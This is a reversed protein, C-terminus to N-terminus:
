RGGMRLDGFFLIYLILDQEADFHSAAMCAGADITGDGSEDFLGGSWFFEDGDPANDFAEKHPEKCVPVPHWVGADSFQVFLELCTRPEKFLLAEPRSKGPHTHYYDSKAPWSRCSAGSLKAKDVELIITGPDDQDYLPGEQGKFDGLVSNFTTTGAPAGPIPGSTILEVPGNAGNPLDVGVCSPITATADGTDACNDGSAEAGAQAAVQAQAYVVEFSASTAPDLSPSTAGLMYTGVTDFKLNSFTAVGQVFAATNASDDAFGGAPGSAIALAVSGVHGTVTAGNVNAVRVTVAPTVAAGLATRTPQQVFELHCSGSVTVKPQSGLLALSIGDFNSGTKAATTWTSVGPACPATVTVAVTVSWLLPVKNALGSGVARLQLTDGAVQATWARDSVSGNAKLVVPVGPNADTWGAPIQVNVSGMVPALVNKITLQYTATVGATASTPAIKASYLTAGANAAFALGLTVVVALVAVLRRDFRRSRRSRHAM